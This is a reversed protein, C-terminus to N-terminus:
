ESSETTSADRLDRASGVIVDYGPRAKSGGAFVITWSYPRKM